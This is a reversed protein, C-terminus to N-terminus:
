SVRRIGVHVHDYHGAVAWLIQVRFSEGAARITYGNFNGVSYGGIGLARVIAYALPAGNFTGYDAASALTALASHDSSPNAITLPDTASRKRSTVPAGHDRACPDCDRRIIDDSGGWHPSGASLNIKRRKRRERILDRILKHLNRIRGALTKDQDELQEIDSRAQELNRALERLRKEIERLRDEDRRRKAKDKAEHQSSIRDHIAQATESLSAIEHSIENRRGQLKERRARAQKVSLRGM